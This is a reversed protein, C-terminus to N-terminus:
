CRPCLHSVMGIATLKEASEGSSSECRYTSITHKGIWQRRPGFFREENEGFGGPELV